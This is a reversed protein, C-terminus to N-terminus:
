PGLVTNVFPQLQRPTPTVLWGRLRGWWGQSRPEVYDSVDADSLAAFLHEIAEALQRRRSKEPLMRLAARNRYIPNREICDLLERRHQPGFPCNSALLMWALVLSVDRTFAVDPREKQERRLFAFLLRRRDRIRAQTSISRWAQRPQYADVAALRSLAVLADTGNNTRLLPREWRTIEVPASVPQAQTDNVM